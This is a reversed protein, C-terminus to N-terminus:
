WDIEVSQGTIQSSKATYQHFEIDVGNPDQFWIQWTNDCGLKKKTSSVGFDALKKQVADIDDTELCFHAVANKGLAFDDEFVEIFSKDSVKLYCGVKRGIKTFDFVHSLGLAQTYFAETKELNQTRICIHAISISMKEGRDTKQSLRHGAYFRKRSKSIDGQM